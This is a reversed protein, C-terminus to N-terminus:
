HNISSYNEKKQTSFSSFKYHELILLNMLLHCKRIINKNQATFTKIKKLAKFTSSTASEYETILKLLYNDDTQSAIEKIENVIALWKEYDNIRKDLQQAKYFIFGYNNYRWDANRSKFYQLLNNTSLTKILELKEIEFNITSLKEYESKQKQLEVIINSLLSAHEQDIKSYAVLLNQLSKDPIDYTEDYVMWKKNFREFDHTAIQISKVVENDPYIIYAVLWCILGFVFTGSAIIGLFLVYKKPNINKM